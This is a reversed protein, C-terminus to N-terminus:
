TASNLQQVITPFSAGLRLHPTALSPALPAVVGGHPSRGLLAGGWRVSPRVTAARRKPRRRCGRRHEGVRVHRTLIKAYCLPLSGFDVKRLM